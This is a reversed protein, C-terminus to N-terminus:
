SEVDAMLFLECKFNIDEAVISWGKCSEATFSLQEEIQAGSSHDKLTLEFEVIGNGMLFHSPRMKVFVIKGHLNNWKEAKEAPLDPINVWETIFSFNGLAPDNSAGTYGRYENPSIYLEFLIFSLGIDVGPIKAGEGCANVMIQM